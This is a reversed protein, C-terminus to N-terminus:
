PSITRKLALVFSIWYGLWAGSPHLPPPFYNTPQQRTDHSQSGQSTAESLSPIARRQVTPKCVPLPM